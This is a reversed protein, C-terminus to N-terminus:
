LDREKSDCQRMDGRIELMVESTETRVSVSM